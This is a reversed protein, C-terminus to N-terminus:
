SNMVCVCVRACVCKEVCIYLYNRLLMEKKGTKKILMYYWIFQLPVIYRGGCVCVTFHNDCTKNM